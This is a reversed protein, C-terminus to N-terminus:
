LDLELRKGRARSCCATMVDNDRREEATLIQDRHDVEGDVVDVLCSGCVGEECISEIEFGHERLVDLASRHAPVELELGSRTLKLRFARNEGLSDQDAKFREFHVSGRPWHAAASDVADMLGAPGCCFLHRGPILPELLSTVDLGRAPNGGDFYFRVRNSFSCSELWDVFAAEDRDRACYHLEFDEGRADLSRAMSLIPTIGIGGAILLSKAAGLVLPFHNRPGTVEISDGTNVHEHVWASGGRSNADRLIGIHYRDRQGAPDTLSYQRMLGNGLHVILHSGPEVPPLEAGDISALELSIVNRAESKRQLVRLPANKLPTIQSM